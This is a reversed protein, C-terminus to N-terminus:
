SGRCRGGRGRRYEAQKDEEADEEEAASEPAPAPEDATGVSALLRRSNRTGLRARAMNLDISPTDIDINLGTTEAAAGDFYLEEELAKLEKAMEAKEAETPLGDSRKMEPDSGDHASRELQDEYAEMEQALDAGETTKPAKKKAKKPSAASAKSDDKAAKELEDNYSEADAEEKERLQAKLKELEAKTEALEREKEDDSGEPSSSSSSAAAAASSSSPSPSSSSTAPNTQARVSSAREVEVKALAPQEKPTVECLGANGDLHLKAFVAECASSEDAAAIESEIQKVKVGAIAADAFIRAKARTNSDEIKSLMEDRTHQAKAKTEMAEYIRAQNEPSQFVEPPPSPPTLEKTEERDPDFADVFSSKVARPSADDDADVRTASPASPVDDGKAAYSKYAVFAGYM